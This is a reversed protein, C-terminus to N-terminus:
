AAFWAIALAAFHQETGWGTTSSEAFLLEM